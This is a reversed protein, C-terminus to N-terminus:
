LAKSIRCSIHQMILRSCFNLQWFFGKTNFILKPIKKEVMWIKPLRLAKLCSLVRQWRDSRNESQNGNVNRTCRVYIPDQFWGSGDIFSSGSIYYNCLHWYMNYIKHEFSIEITTFGCQIIFSQKNKLFCAEHDANFLIWIKM